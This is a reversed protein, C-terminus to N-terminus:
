QISDSEKSEGETPNPLVIIDSRSIREKGAITLVAEINGSTKKIGRPRFEADIFMWGAEIEPGYDAEKVAAPLASDPALWEVALANSVEVILATRNKPDTISELNPPGSGNAAYVRGEGSSLRWATKNPELSNAFVSPMKLALPRNTESDWPQSFDIRDYLERLGLHPLLSVRWSFQPGDAGDLPGDAPLKGHLEHFQAIARALQNVAEIRQAVLTTQQFDQIAASLFPEVAQSRGIRLEIQRESKILEVLNQKEIDDLLATLAGSIKPTYMQPGSGGPSFGGAMGPIGGNANASPSRNTLSENIATALQDVARQDEINVSLHLMEAAEVDATLVAHNLSTFPQVTDGAGFSRAMSAMTSFFGSIPEPDFYAEIMRPSQSQNALRQLNGTANTGAMRGAIELSGIVFHRENIRAAVQGAEKLGLLHPRGEIPKANPFRGALDDFADQTEFVVVLPNSSDPNGGGNLGQTVSQDLLLWVRRYQKLEAAEPSLWKALSKELLGWDVKQLSQASTLKPVDLTVALFFGKDLFGGTATDELRGEVAQDYFVPSNKNEVPLSSVKSANGCGGAAVLLVVLSAATALGFNSVFHCWISQFRNM